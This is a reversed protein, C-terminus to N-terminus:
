VLAEEWPTDELRVSYVPYILPTQPTALLAHLLLMAVAEAFMDLLVRRVHEMLLPCKNLPVHSVHAAQFLAKDLPVPHVHKALVLSIELPAHGAYGAQSLYKDLPVTQVSAAPLLAKAPPVLQAPKALVLPHELPAHGVHGAQLLAKAPLVPRVHHLVPQALLLATALPARSVPEV